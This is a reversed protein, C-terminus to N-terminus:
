KRGLVKFIKERSVVKTKRGEEMEKLLFFDEQEEETLFRFSYGLESALERLMKAGSKTKPTIVVSQM